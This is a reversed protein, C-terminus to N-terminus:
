AIRTARQGQIADIFERWADAAGEALAAGCYFQKRASRTWVCRAQVTVDGRPLRIAFTAPIVRPGSFVLRVGGYSMDVIEARGSAAHVPVEDAVSHRFWRRMPKQAPRRSELAAGVCQLFAPNELPAAIFDAGHRKAEGEAWWDDSAATVIVAVDPHCLHTLTALQLGNYDNLRLDAILLDPTASDLLEEGEVFSAAIGVSYGHERLVAKTRRLVGEDTSVVIISAGMIIRRSPDTDSLSM